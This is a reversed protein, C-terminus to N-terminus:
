HDASKFTDSAKVIYAVENGPAKLEGELLAIERQKFSFLTKALKGWNFKILDELIEATSVVVTELVGVNTKMKHLRM